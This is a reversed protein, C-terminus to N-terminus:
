RASAFVRVRDEITGADMDGFPADADWQVAPGVAQQDVYLIHTILRYTRLLLSRTRRM